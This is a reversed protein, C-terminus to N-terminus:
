SARVRFSYTGSGLEFLRREEEEQVFTVGDAEEAPTGGELIQTDGTAPLAITATTNAPITVTFTLAGGEKQWASAIRGHISMFEAKAYTLDDGPYPRLQIHQYGPRQQDTSIGAVYQFLWQGVSGLSYHNFSNMGPDQFGKDTTWGDWREWITTAGHKISYGWSPFTDNKLLQFAVESYGSNTLVPCLYGVGVFGTSLHGNKKEIEKVLHRAALPRLHEPLLQMQLAVVYCTQTGGSIHGEEDVYARTFAEGIGKFLRQYKEADEERGLARAIHSMLLADYGFYATALVEKPTDAEISLWDGFDNHRKNKWLLEPNAEHLYALWRAMADYHEELIRTDGYMQYITWPVIIGADGWAPAGNTKLVVRPAVDPFGGDPAQADVVDRMWKTFFAAVDMNYCATRVFIQADGMWGLREDRQPCDTPVSIFNGRQGWVINKQLQNVMPNSCEFSGTPPTDSHAVMGTLADLTPQGPYGSIEVYRFGHFTFHPEFVEQGQGKLIYTDTQRASRLNTAYITGDPNLMEVFRLQVRTGAEGAVQLRVWGVMNQGMDYIFVGPSIETVSQPTLTQTVRIPQDPEAVLQVATDREEVLVPQWRGDPQFTPQGWDGLEHRADYTEGALFDSYVIPGLAGQWNEDSVITQSNGDTYEIQMQLLLRPASGYHQYNSNQGGMGFGVHGCYWGTGLIAAVSNEGQQLQTTIDYTQYQIRQQYDTWGPAFYADGVRQGNIHVEYVGKATVYLRAKRVARPLTAITRLYPSSQLGPLKQMPEVDVADYAPMSSQLGIWKGQWDGDNLLGMEWRASASFDSAEDRADWVRVQWWCQQGSTLASGAYLIQSSQQSSVKGSDWLDGQGQALGPETSSVLIQYATQKLSRQEPSTAELQWSLRPQTTDIGSPNDLYECRLRAPTITTTM